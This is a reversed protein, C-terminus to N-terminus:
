SCSICEEIRVTIELSNLGTAKRIEERYKQAVSNEEPTVVITYDPRDAITLQEDKRWEQVRRMLTRMTGEDRLEPTLTTDLSIDAELSSDEIVEKVNVEEAILQRLGLDAPLSKVSLKGLPQRIKINARERAELAMSAIARVAEM